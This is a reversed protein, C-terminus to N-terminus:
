LPVDDANRPPFDDRTLDALRAIIDSAKVIEGEIRELKADLYGALDSDIGPLVRARIGGASLSMVNLPQRLDHIVERLSYGEAM